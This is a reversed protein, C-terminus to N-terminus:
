DPSSAPLGACRGAADTVRSGAVGASAPPTLPARGALMGTLGRAHGGGDSAASATSGPAAPAAPAAPPEPTTRKDAEEDSSGAVLEFTPKRAPAKPVVVPRPPEVPREVKPTLRVPAAKVPEPASVVPARPPAPPKVSVAAPASFTESSQSTTEAQPELIPVDVPDDVLPVESVTGVVGSVLPRAVDLTNGVLGILGSSPRTPRPPPPLPRDEASANSALVVMAVWVAMLLGAVAAVRLLLVSVTRDM